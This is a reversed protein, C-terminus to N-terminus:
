AVSGILNTVTGGMAPQFPAVWLGNCAFCILAAVATANITVVDYSSGAGSLGGTFTLTKAAAGSSIILLMDGDQDKTPVAITMADAVTGNLVAVMDTGPSPLTIAGAASYSLVRRQRGSLPYAAETTVDSGAFDAAGSLISATGVLVNAGTVHAKAQTGNQGRRVPIMTTAGSDAEATQVLFEDDIKLVKGKGFGTASAVKILVQDASIAGSLTTATIAM